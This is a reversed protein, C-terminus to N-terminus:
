DEVDRPDKIPRKKRRASCRRSSCVACVDNGPHDGGTNNSCAGPVWGWGKDGAAGVVDAIPQQAAM